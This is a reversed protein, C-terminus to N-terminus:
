NVGLYGSLVKCQFVIDEVFLDEALVASIGQCRVIIGIASIGSFLLRFSVGFFDFIFTSLTSLTEGKPFAGFLSPHL